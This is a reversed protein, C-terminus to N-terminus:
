HVSFQWKYVACVEDVVTISQELVAVLVTIEEEAPEERGFGHKFETLLHKPDCRLVFEQCGAGIGISANASFANEDAFLVSGLGESPEVNIDLFEPKEVGQRM